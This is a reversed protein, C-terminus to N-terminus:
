KVSGMPHNHYYTKRFSGYEVVFPVQTHVEFGLSRLRAAVDNEYVREDFLRGFKNHAAYACDMVAKDIVAFETDSVSHLHLSPHIPM